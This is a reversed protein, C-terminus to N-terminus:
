RPVSVAPPVVLTPAATSRAVPRRRYSEVTPRPLLQPENSAKGARTSDLATVIFQEFQPVTCLRAYGQVLQHAKYANSISSSSFPQNFTILSTETATKYAYQAEQVKLRLQTSYNSFAFQEGYSDFMQASLGALAALIALPKALSASGRGYTATLIAPATSFAQQVSNKAFLLKRKEVEIAIFFQECHHDVYNYGARVYDEGTEIKRNFHLEFAKTYEIIQEPEPSNLRSSLGNGACAAVAMATGLIAAILALSKAARKTIRAFSHAAVLRLTLVTLKKRM